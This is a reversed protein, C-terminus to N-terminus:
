FPWYAYWDLMNQGRPWIPESKWGFIIHKNICSNSIVVNYIWLWLLIEFTLKRTQRGRMAFISQFLVIIVDKQHELRAWSFWLPFRIATSMFWGRDSVPPFSIFGSFTAKDWNSTTNPQLRWQKTPECILLTIILWSYCALTKSTLNVFHFYCPFHVWLCM